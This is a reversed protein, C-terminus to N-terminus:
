LQLIYLQNSILEDRQQEQFLCVDLEEILEDIVLFSWIFDVYRHKHIEMNLDCWALTLFSFILVIIIIDHEKTRFHLM